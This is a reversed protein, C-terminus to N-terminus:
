VMDLHSRSFLSFLIVLLFGFPISIIGPNRLEILPKQLGVISHAGDPIGAAASQAAARQAELKQRAGNDQTNSIQTSLTAVTKLAAEKRLSEGLRDM